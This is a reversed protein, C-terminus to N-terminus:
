FSPRSARAARGWSRWRRTSLWTSISTKSPPSATTARPSTACAFRRARLWSSRAGSVQSRRTHAPDPHRALQDSLPLLALALRRPRGRRQPVRDAVRHPHFALSVLRSIGLLATRGRRRGGGQPRDHGHHWSGQLSFAGDAQGRATARGHTRCATWGSD